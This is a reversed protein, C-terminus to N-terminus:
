KWPELLLQSNKSVLLYLGLRRFLYMGYNDIIEHKMKSDSSKSAKKRCSFNTKNIIKKTDQLEATNDLEQTTAQIQLENNNDRKNSGMITM